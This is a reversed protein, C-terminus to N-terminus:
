RGGSQGHWTVGVVVQRGTFGPWSELLRKDFLNTVGISWETALPLARSIRTDVRVWGARERSVAGSADRDIPTRGTYLLSLNGHLGLPTTGTL